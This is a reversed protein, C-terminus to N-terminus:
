LAQELETQSFVAAPVLNAVFLSYHANSTRDMVEEQLRLLSFFLLELLLGFEIVQIFGDVEFHLSGGLDDSM